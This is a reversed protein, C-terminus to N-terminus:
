RDPMLEGAVHRRRDLFRRAARRVNESSVREVRREAALMAKPDTGFRYHEVLEALWYHTCRPIPAFIGFRYGAELGGYGGVKFGDCWTRGCGAIGLPLGLLVRRQWSDFRYPKTGDAIRGAVYRTRTV